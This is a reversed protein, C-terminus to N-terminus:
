GVAVARTAMYQRGGLPVRTVGRSTSPLREIAMNWTDIVDITFDRDPLAIDRLQPQMFGFYQLYYREPVGGSTADWIMELERHDESWDREFIERLFKIRPASTGCLKGGHDYFRSGNHIGLLHSAADEERVIRAFREWDSLQKHEM